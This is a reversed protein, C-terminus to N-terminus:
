TFKVRIVAYQRKTYSFAFTIFFYLCSFPFDRNSDGKERNYTKICTECLEVQM